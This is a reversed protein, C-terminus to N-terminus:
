ILKGDRMIHGPPTGFILAANAAQKAKKEAEKIPDSLLLEGEREM